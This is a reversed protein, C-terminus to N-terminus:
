QMVEDAKEPALRTILVNQRAEILQRAIGAMQQATKGEGFVVEPMGLRLARHHDVRAYGLDRFPLKKLEELASELEVKGSKVAELLERVRGPNMAAGGLVRIWRSAAAPSWVARRAVASESRRADHQAAAM